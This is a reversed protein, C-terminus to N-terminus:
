ERVEAKLTPLEGLAITLQALDLPSPHRGAALINLLAAARAARAIAAALAVAEPVDAWDVREIHVHWRDASGSVQCSCARVDEYEPDPPPVADWGDEGDERVITIGFRAAEETINKM